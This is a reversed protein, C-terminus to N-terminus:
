RKIKLVWCYYMNNGNNVPATYAQVFEWGKLAMANLTEAMSKYSVNEIESSNGYDITIKMKSAMFPKNGIIECYQYNIKTSDNSQANACLLFVSMVAVLMIKKM